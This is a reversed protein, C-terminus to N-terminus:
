NAGPKQKRSESPQVGVVVAAVRLAVDPVDYVNLILTILIVIKHEQNCRVGM